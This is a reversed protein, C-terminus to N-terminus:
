RRRRTLLTLSALALISLSAPEPVATNVILTYGLDKLIGIEVASYARADLEGPPQSMANMMQNNPYVFTYDDLHSGGSSGPEYTTPAYLPVLGGFAAVANPGDFYLPDSGGGSADLGGVSAALWRPGDLVYTDQTIIPGSADALYHAMPTFEGGHGPAHGWADHGDQSVGAAFGLAHTMEHMATSIFDYQGDGITDGLAWPQNFNWNIQGDAAGPAPDAANGGLIKIMVDGKDGFGHGAYPANFNSAASALVNPDTVSGNVNITITANYNVFYAADRAAATQLAARRAAGYTPDNFGVGIDTFNFDFIVDARAVSAAVLPFALAALVAAILPRNMM